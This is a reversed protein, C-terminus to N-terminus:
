AKWGSGPTEVNTGGKALPVGRVKRCPTDLISVGHDGKQVLSLLALGEIQSDDPEFAQRM